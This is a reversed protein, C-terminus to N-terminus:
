FKLELDIAELAAKAGAPISITRNPGESEDVNIRILSSKPFQRLIRESTMRVTPVAKGAGLELIVIKSNQNSSKLGLLFNNMRTEQDDTRLSVWSNDYFMLINPRAPVPKNTRESIITPLEGQAEFKEDIVLNPLTTQAAPIIQHGDVGPERAQIFNISGHCECVRDSGFGAREFMGDVNSTFVFHSGIHNSWKLLIDYGLHPFAKTYLHYRHGFFGWAFRENTEFSEPNSVEAFSLGAKAAPPYAKWFGEKSRFTPLGSDASMGAGATIILAECGKIAEVAPKLWRPSISSSSVATSVVAVAAAGTSAM